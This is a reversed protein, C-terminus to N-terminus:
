GRSLRLRNYCDRCARAIFKGRSVLLRDGMATIPSVYNFGGRRHSQEIATLAESM